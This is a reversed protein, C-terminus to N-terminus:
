LGVKLKKQFNPFLSFVTDSKQTDCLQVHSRPNYKPNDLLATPYYNVLAESVRVAEMKM